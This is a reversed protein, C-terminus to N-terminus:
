VADREKIYEVLEPISTTKSASSDLSLKQLTQKPDESV